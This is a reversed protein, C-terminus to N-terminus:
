PDYVDFSDPTERHKEAIKVASNRVTALLDLRRPHDQPLTAAFVTDALALLDFATDTDTV